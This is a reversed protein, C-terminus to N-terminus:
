KNNERIRNVSGNIANRVALYLQKDYESDTALWQVHESEHDLVYLKSKDSHYLADHNYGRFPLIIKDSAAVFNCKVLKAYNVAVDDLNTEGFTRMESVVEKLCELFRESEFVADKVRMIGNQKEKLCYRSKAKVIVQEIDAGTFFKNSRTFGEEDVRLKNVMCVDSEILRKFASGNVRKKNFLPLTERNDSNMESYVECQHNIHSEFIAACELASPLFMFFKEDFRGSRFMEPPMKSIDNATAFVFCSLGRESKEQMWTLFKGFIRKSVEHGDSAGSFAKEIEDIWLVCPSLSEIVSLAKNMNKESDGVFKGNVDGLDFRILSLSFRNAIYKAMMSKGSGPIGSVLIGKPVNRVQEQCKKPSCVYPANEEIWDSIVKMGAPEVGSPQIMTLPAASDLIQESAHRVLKMLENYNDRDDKDNSEFFIKGLRIKCEDLTTIIQRSSMGRMALFLGELFNKKSSVDVHDLRSVHEVVIDCFESESVAPVKILVSYPEIASPINVMSDLVVLVISNMFLKKRATFNEEESAMNILQSYHCACKFLRKWPIEQCNDKDYEGAWIFVHPMKPQKSLVSMKSFDDPISVLNDFHVNSEEVINTNQDVKLKVEKQYPVIAGSTVVGRVIELDTTQLFFIRKGAMYAVKIAEITRGVRSNLYKNANM